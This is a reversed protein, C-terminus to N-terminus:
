HPRHGVWMNGLEWFVLGKCSGQVLISLANAILICNVFGGLCCLVLMSLAAESIHRYDISYYMLHMSWILRLCGPTMLLGMAGGIFESSVSKGVDVSVLLVTLKLSRRVMECYHIFQRLGM